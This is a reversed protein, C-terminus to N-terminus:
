IFAFVMRHCSYYTKELMSQDAHPGSKTTLYGPYRETFSLENCTIAKWPQSLVQLPFLHIENGGDTGAAYRMASNVDSIDNIRAVLRKIIYWVSILDRASLDSIPVDLKFTLQNEITPHSNIELTYKYEGASGETLVLSKDQELSTM